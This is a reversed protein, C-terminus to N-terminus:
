VKDVSPIEFGMNNPDKLLRNADKAHEGTHTEKKPDFQLWPGVTYYNDKEPIGVGKGMVDHLKGFHEVADKNDGFRGAKLNFPVDEGLRYSNNMLHGLVCGYHADDVNGNAMSPDGERCAAVFSGWNGGPTM